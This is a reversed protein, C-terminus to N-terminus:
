LSRAAAVSTHETKARNQNRHYGPQKVNATISFGGHVTITIDYGNIRVESVLAKVADDSISSDNSIAEGLIDHIQSLRYVSADYRAERNELEQRKGSLVDIQSDIDQSDELYEDDSILGAYLKKRMEKKHEKLTNLRRTLTSKQSNSHKDSFAAELAKMIHGISEERNEWLSSIAKRVLMDLEKEPVKINDCGGKKLDTGWMKYSSCQWVSRPGPKGPKNHYYRKGCRQCIIKGSLAYSGQYYGYYTAREDVNLKKRRSQLIENAKEYTEMDIIAPIRNPFYLWQDEPLLYKKKDFFDIYYKNTVWTGTYKINRVMRKLSTLPFMKDSSLTNFLGNTYLEQAIKRFGAGDIYRQFVYKVIDKERDNIVYEGNIYDYGWIRSNGYTHGKQKGRQFANRMKMSQQRSFLEALKAEIGMQLWDGADRFDYYSQNSTTFLRVRSMILDEEFKAWDRDNRWGRDIRTMVIVDFQDKYMDLVLQAYEDRGKVQTATKGEDVYGRVLVWGPQNNIYEELAEIQNKLASIQMEHETSVRAYYVARTIEFVENNM